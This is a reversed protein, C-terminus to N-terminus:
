NRVTQIIQFVLCRICDPRRGLDSEIPYHPSSASTDLASAGRGGMHAPLVASVVLVITSKEIRIVRWVDRRVCEGIHVHM